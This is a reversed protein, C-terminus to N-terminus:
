ENHEAVSVRTNTKLKGGRLQSCRLYVIVLYNFIHRKFDGKSCENSKVPSGLM